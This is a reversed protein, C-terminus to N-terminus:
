APSIGRPTFGAKEVARMLHQESARSEDLEVRASGVEVGVVSVGPLRSLVQTVSRVCGDCSMGDIDIKLRRIAM